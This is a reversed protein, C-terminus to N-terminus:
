PPQILAAHRKDRTYHRRCCLVSATPDSRPPHRGPIAAVPTPEPFGADLPPLLSTHPALARPAPRLMPVWAAPNAASPGRPLTRHLPHGRREAHEREWPNSRVVPSAPPPQGRPIGRRPAHTHRDLTRRRPVRPARHHTHRTESCAPTPISAAPGRQLSQSCSSTAVVSCAIAPSRKSWPSCESASSSVREPDSAADQAVQVRVDGRRERALRAHM